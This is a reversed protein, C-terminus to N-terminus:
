KRKESYYNLYYYNDNKGEIVGFRAQLTYGPQYSTKQWANTTIYTFNDKVFNLNSEAYKPFGTIVQQSCFEAGNTRKFVFVISLCNYFEQDALAYNSSLQLSGDKTVSREIKYSPNPKLKNLSDMYSIVQTEPAGILIDISTVQSQVPGIFVIICNLIALITRM